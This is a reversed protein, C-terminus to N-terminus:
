YCLFSNELQLIFLSDQMFLEVHVFLFQLCNLEVTVYLGYFGMLTFALTSNLTFKGSKELKRQTLKSKAYCILLIFRPILESKIKSHKYYPMAM